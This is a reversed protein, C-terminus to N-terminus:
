GSLWVIQDRFIINIACVTDHLIGSVTSTGVAFLEFCIM